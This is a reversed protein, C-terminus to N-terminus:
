LSIDIANLEWPQSSAIGFSLCLLGRERARLLPITDSFLYDLSVVFGPRLRFNHWQSQLTPGGLPKLLQIDVDIALSLIIHRVPSEWGGASGVSGSHQFPYCITHPFPINAVHFFRTRMCQVLSTGKKIICHLTNNMMQLSLGEEGEHYQSASSRSSGDAM